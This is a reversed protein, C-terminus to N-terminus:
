TLKFGLVKKFSLILSKFKYKLKIEKLPPTQLLKSALDSLEKVKEPSRNEPALFYRKLRFINAIFWHQIHVVVIKQAAVDYKLNKCFPNILNYFGECAVLYSNFNSKSYNEAHQAYISYMKNVVLGGKISGAMAIMAHDFLHPSGYDPLKGITLLSEKDIICSSWLLNKTIKPDLIKLLFNEKKIVLSEENKLGEFLFGGYVSLGPNAIILPVLEALFNESVPDDDTVMVIYEGASRDISKNFSKVMGLNEPNHFYKIRPDGIQEVVARASAEEDNDSVVIELNGYTQELIKRLQVDLIVPRRFTSMCFSVLPQSSM